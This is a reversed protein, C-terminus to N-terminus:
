TTLTIEFYKIKKNIKFHNTWKELLIVQKSWWVNNPHHVQFPHASCLMFCMYPLHSICVINQNSFRFSLPWKL